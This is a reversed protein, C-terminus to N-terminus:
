GDDGAYQEEAARDAGVAPGECGGHKEGGDANGGGGDDAGRDADVALADGGTLGDRDDDDAIHARAEADPQGDDEVTDKEVPQHGRAPRRSGIPWAQDHRYAIM